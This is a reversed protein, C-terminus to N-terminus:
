EDMQKQLSVQVVYFSARNYIAYLLPFSKVKRLLCLELVLRPRPRVARPAPGRGPVVTAAPPGLRSSLPEREVMEWLGPM